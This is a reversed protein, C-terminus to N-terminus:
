QMQTTTLTDASFMRETQIDQCILGIRFHSDAIDGFLGMFKEEGAASTINVRPNNTHTDITQRQRELPCPRQRFMTINASIKKDNV